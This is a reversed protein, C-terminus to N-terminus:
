CSWWIRAPSRMRRHSSAAWRRVFGLTDFTNVTVASGFVRESEDNGAVNSETDPRTARSRLSRSRTSRGPGFGARPSIAAARGNDISDIAMLRDQQPYPLPRLMISDILTFIATNAGIGLALTLVATVAFGPSRRLQRLAFKADALLSELRPWQWAERGREEILTANGFARRAAQMAEERSMGERVFQETKEEIHARMEEALDGYLNRSHFIRTFWSM